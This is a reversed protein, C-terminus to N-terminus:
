AWAQRSETILQRALKVAMIADKGWGDAGCEDAWDQSTPAGGILIRVKGRLGAKEFEDLVAEGTALLSRLPTRLDGAEAHDLWHYADLMRTARAVLEEYLRVSPEPDAVLRELEGAVQGRARQAGLM